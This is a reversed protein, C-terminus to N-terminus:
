EDGEYVCSGWSECCGVQGVGFLLAAQQRGQEEEIRLVLEGAAAMLAPKPVSRQKVGAAWRGGWGASVEDLQQQQKDDVAAADGAAATAAPKAKAEEDEESASELESDSSEL